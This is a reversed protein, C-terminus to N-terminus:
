QAFPCHGRTNVATLVPSVKFGSAVQTHIGAKSSWIHSRPGRHGGRYFLASLLAKKGSHNHARSDKM